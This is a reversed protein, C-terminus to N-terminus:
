RVESSPTVDSGRESAVARANRTNADTAVRKVRPPAGRAERLKRALASRSVRLVYALADEHWVSFPINELSAMFTGVVLDDLGPDDAPSLARRRKVLTGEVAQLLLLEWLRHPGHQQAHFLDAVVEKRTTDLKDSKSEGRLIEQVQPVTLDHFIEHFDVRESAYRVREQAIAVDLSRTCDQILLLNMPIGTHLPHPSDLSTRRSALPATM